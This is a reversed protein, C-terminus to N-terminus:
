RGLRDTLDDLMREDGALLPQREGARAAGARGAEIIVLRGATPGAQATCALDAALSDHLFDGLGAQAAPAARAERRADLPLRDGARGARLLVDDAIRVFAIGAGEGIAHDHFAIGIRQ